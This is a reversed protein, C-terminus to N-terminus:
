QDDRFRARDKKGALDSINTIGRDKRGILYVNQVKDDAGIISIEKGNFVNVVVPYESAGAIDVEGNLMGAIGAGPPDYNRITVDLGNGSFFHQDEAVFVLAAAESPQFGISLPERAPTSRSPSLV